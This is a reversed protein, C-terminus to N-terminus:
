SCAHMSHFAEYIPITHKLCVDWDLFARFVLQTAACIFKFNRHLLEIAVVEIIPQKSVGERPTEYCIKGLQCAKM